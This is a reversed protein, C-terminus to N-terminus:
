LHWNPTDFITHHYANCLVVELGQPPPPVEFFEQHPQGGQNELEQGEKLGFFTM